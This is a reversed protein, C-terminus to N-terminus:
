AAGGLLTHELSKLSREVLRQHDDARLESALTRGAVAVARDAALRYLEVRAAHEAQGIERLTRAKMREIEQRATEILQLRLADADRKGEALMEAAEARVRALQAENQARLQMLQGHAVDARGLQEVITKERSRLAKILPPGAFYILVAFFLVSAVGQWLPLDVEAAAALLLM